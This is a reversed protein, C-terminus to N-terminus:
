ILAYRLSDPLYEALIELLLIREYNLPPEFTNV